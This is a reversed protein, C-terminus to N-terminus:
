TGSRGARVCRMCESSNRAGKHECLRKAASMVADRAVKALVVADKGSLAAAIADSIKKYFSM